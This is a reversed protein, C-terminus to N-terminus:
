IRHQLQLSSISVSEICHMQLLSFLKKSMNVASRLHNVGAFFDRSSCTITLNVSARLTKQVKDGTEMPHIVLVAAIM